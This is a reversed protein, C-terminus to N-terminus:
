EASILCILRMLCGGTQPGSGPTRSGGCDVCWGGAGEEVPLLNRSSTTLCGGNFRSSRGRCDLGNQTEGHRDAQHDFHHEPQESVATEWAVAQCGFALVTVELSAAAPLDDLPLVASEPDTLRPEFGQRGAM